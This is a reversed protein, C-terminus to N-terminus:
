FDRPNARAPEFGASTTKKQNARGKKEGNSAKWNSDGNVRKFREVGL